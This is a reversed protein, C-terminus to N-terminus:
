FRMFKLEQRPSGSPSELDITLVGISYLSANTASPSILLHSNSAWSSNSVAATPEEARRAARKLFRLASIARQSHLCVSVTKLSKSLSKSAMSIGVKSKSAILVSNDREM